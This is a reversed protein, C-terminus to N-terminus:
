EYSIAGTPCDAIVENLDCKKCIDKKVHAKFDEGVKFCEPCTAECTGCGTCLNEDIELKLTKTEPM